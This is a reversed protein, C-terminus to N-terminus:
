QEAVKTLEVNVQAKQGSSLVVTEAKSSYPKMAEPNTFEIGDSRDFAYVRYSGPALGFTQFTGQPNV